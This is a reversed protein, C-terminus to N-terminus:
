DFLIMYVTADTQGAAEDRFATIKTIPGYDENEVLPSGDVLRSSSKQSGLLDTTLMLPIGAQVKLLSYESKSDPSALFEVFLPESSELLMLSFSEIGGQGAEWLVIPKYGAPVISRVEFSEGTDLSFKLPTEQGGYTKSVGDLVVQIRHYLNLSTSM